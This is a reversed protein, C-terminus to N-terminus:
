SRTATNHTKMRALLQAMDGNALIDSFQSRFSSLMSVGEVSMDFMKWGNGVRMLKYTVTIPSANSGVIQSRVEVTSVGEYGGRVPYFNVVQDQYSTLASAYTRVLLRTFEKKFQAKQAPSAGNWVAPPLVRRSMAEIDAHPVVYRYALQYVIEPKTKLTAKNNKLQSIMNNAVNQLLTIPNSSAANASFGVLVMWAAIFLISLPKISRM